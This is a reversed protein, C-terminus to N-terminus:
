KREFLVGSWTDDIAYLKYDVLRHPVLGAERVQQQALDCKVEFTKM